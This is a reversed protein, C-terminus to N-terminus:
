SKSANKAASKSPKSRRLASLDKLLDDLKPNLKNLFKLSGVGLTSNTMVDSSIAKLTEDLQEGRQEFQDFFADLKTFDALDTVLEPLDFDPPLPAVNSQLAAVAQECFPRSKDGM